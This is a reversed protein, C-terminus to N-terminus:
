DARDAPSRLYDGAHTVAHWPRDPQGARLRRSGASLYPEDGLVPCRGIRPLLRGTSSPMRRPRRPDGETRPQSSGEDPQGVVPASRSRPHVVRCREAAPSVPLPSGPGGAGHVQDRHAAVVPRRPRRLARPYGHNRLGADRTTRSHGTMRRTPSARVRFPQSARSIFPQRSQNQTSPDTPTTTPICPLSDLGRGPLRHSAGELTLADSHRVTMPTAVAQDGFVGGCGSFPLNSILIPSAHEYRILRHSVLNAADQEFPRYGAEDVIILGYRRLRSLEGALRGIAHADSILAVGPPPPPPSSGTDTAHPPSM